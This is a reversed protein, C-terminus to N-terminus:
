GRAARLPSRGPVRGFVLTFDIRRLAVDIVFILLAAVLLYPWLPVARLASRDSPAFVEEPKPDHRGQSVKSVSKLLDVNTPRLRLEDPYGVSLGRSQQYLLQGRYKQAFELHYSGALPTDFEAQYRGPATQAMPLKLKGLQADIVTLETEADNLYRGSPDIADLTVAAHRNKHDVQVVVGKADSKRMAHRIVQAWFRGYGPWPLWEAAWRPKADSTFAVSMGLGYRWWTLLPDGAESALILESTPKPRTVVYGLLPPAAGFDLEALTQTPRIVQPNFPIENIASKSAAVTEKAFIQPVSAPDDTFYYRGNGIRAIEELLNQDAGEGVGVTTITIHASAMSAAVGEFDGPTSIGDTLLIVHKLKAPVRQLADFAEEMAPHMNTGGGAEITAVRDIVFGKDTCPHLESILFPEGDFAIVGVKDNPGLLEIAGKAADKVLEIKDGGMSGSKDIVIMMALSPKEKEKEFDSRVPLIEELATKYYGGLGFSQDGGLMILGGGLDRVYTRALDMQRTTLSTAPVNSIMLLEYNQLDALSDPMGQPPRVDVQIEQEELAWTLDKADKPESEILLVRPKGSAFVLGSESNNDQQEDRFNRARATYTALRDQEISQQFRFRNEGKKIKKRESAVKIAGKYVEIDGEDDHNADVVVEVYFPEGQLVQAPVKVASVQVEPEQRTKLPVTDIPVGARLAAKVADGATQNGDTVLVIRPVHFPPCAATAVEIAAALDTGKPEAVPNKKTPDDSVVGPSAAFPVVAAKHRGQSELAKGIFKDADKRSDDGVSLSQDVAFVVFQDKTPSLLTLGALSLVLLAAILVRLALSILRQRTAFDVLSHRFYYYLIPLALLGLLWGPRILELQYGLAGM